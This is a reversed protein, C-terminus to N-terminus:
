PPVINTRAQSMDRHQRILANDLRFIRRLDDVAQVLNGLFIFGTANWFIEIEFIDVHMHFRPQRLNDTRYCAAQVRRSRERKM